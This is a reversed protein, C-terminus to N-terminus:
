GFLIGNPNVLFVQGNASLSGLIASGDSGLVRNLAISSANPQVFKVAEGQAIGFGQWNISVNQSSQNIPATAAGTPITASRGPVPAGTPLPVAGPAFAVALALVIRKLAFQTKSSQIPRDARKM